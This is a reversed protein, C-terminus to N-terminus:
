LPKTIIYLSKLSNINTSMSMPYNKIVVQHRTSPYSIPYENQYDNYFIDKYIKRMCKTRIFERIQHSKEEDQGHKCAHHFERM